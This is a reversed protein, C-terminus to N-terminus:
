INNSCSYPSKSEQDLDHWVSLKCVVQGVWLRSGSLEYFWAEPSVRAMWVVKALGNEPPTDVDNCEVKLPSPCCEKGWSEDIEKESKNRAYWEWLFLVLGIGFPHSIALLCVYETEPEILFNLCLILKDCMIDLLWSVRIILDTSWIFDSFPGVVFM